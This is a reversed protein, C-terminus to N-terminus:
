GKGNRTAKMSFLAQEKQQYSLGVQRLTVTIKDAKGYRRSAIITVIQADDIYAAGNMGDTVAKVKNDLDGRTPFVLAEEALVREDQTMSKPMAEIIDITIEIPCALPASMVKRTGTGIAKEFDRTRKPTYPVGGQRHRPREKAVAKMDFVLTAVTSDVRDRWRGLLAKMGYTM